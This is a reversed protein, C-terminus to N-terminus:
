WVSCRQDPPRVLAAGAPCSFAAAFEPTNSLPGIVRYQAIPHPDGQVMLRQTEPRIADGRFQGWAIFFQQDPTFGDLTPAPTQQRAKQFARYALNVGGLDGISEGLVLKGNHHIGPEILYHEFQDVVCQGRAHFKDLDDQTWWNDLRGQADFQAGQDDFGHSIEHGIVVGIAGYNVADVADLSFAPPQLIGAPFVIENLSPNYYADSTPPTLGWRGRDVPKDILNRNDAVNWARAALSSDWFQDRQIPISSYDKWKDPYGIKPNFTALKELARQRTPPSMWDLKEITDRMAALLNTVLLKMRAKAAPPFYRDTYKKGLAEGLLQDTSEVCRKWRPKIEETGSLYKDNFAFDEDVFPQSLAPAAANILHWAFYTRWDSVPTAHLQREFERFFEPETVNLSAPQIRFAKFYAPWDFSPTLAALGAATTAHDTARPDRLAVNDLSARALGLEIAMVTDAARRAAADDRGILKFMAAIHVLYRERAEAFRPETKVYYDRDPLGLGSAVAWAVVNTPAHLDSNGFLGFPVPIAIAHLRAIMRGVDAPERLKDIEALLPKIPEAGRQDIRAQDMCGGYFDGILQEVSARPWDRRASVEDLIDKLRDKSTEGAQWRRSWRTMSAPIPNQKRWSGNAFEFFDNCPDAARDLDAVYVGHQGAPTGSSAPPPHSGCAAAIVVLLPTRTKMAAM